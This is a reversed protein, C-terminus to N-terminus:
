KWPYKIKPRFEIFSVDWPDLESIKNRAFHPEFAKFLKGNLKFEVFLDAVHYRIPSMNNTERLDFHYNSIENNQIWDYLSYLKAYELFTALSCSESLMDEFLRSYDELVISLKLDPNNQTAKREAREMINVKRFVSDVWLSGDLDQEYPFEGEYEFAVSEQWPETLHYIYEFRNILNTFNDKDFNNALILSIMEELEKLDLLNESPIIPKLADCANLLNQFVQSYWHYFNIFSSLASPSRKILYVIADFNSEFTINDGRNFLAYFEKMKGNLQSQFFSSNVFLTLCSEWDCSWEFIPKSDYIIKFIEYLKDQILNLKREHTVPDKEDEHIIDDDFARKAEYLKQKLRSRTFGNADKKPHEKKDFDAEGDKLAKVLDKNLTSFMERYPKKNFYIKDVIDFLDLDKHDILVCLMSIQRPPTVDSEEKKSRGRPNHPKYEGAM